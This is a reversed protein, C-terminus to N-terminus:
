NETQSKEYFEEMLKDLEETSYREATFSNLEDTIDEHIKEGPRLGIVRKDPRMNVVRGIAFALEVISTSKMDPIMLGNKSGNLASDIVFKAADEIKILFRTMQDDTIDFSNKEEISKFFMPVVSGRSGIVNGYRTVVNNANRLVFREALAKCFGYTNIPKCAKDTSSLCVRKIGNERQAILVNDTGIVNTKHCEDPNEEMTDVCKLAAFHMIIDCGRSQDTIRQKDRVDGLVMTVQNAYPFGRQKQEDRSFGIISIPSYIGYFIDNYPRELRNPNNILLLQRTVETGLTGTIGTILIRM